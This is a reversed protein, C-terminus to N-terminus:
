VDRIMVFRSGAVSPNRKCVEAVYDSFNCISLLALIFATCRDGLVM